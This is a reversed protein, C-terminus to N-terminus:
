HCTQGGVSVLKLAKGQNETVSYNVVRDVMYGSLMFIHHVLNENSTRRSQGNQMWFHVSIEMLAATSEMFETLDEDM